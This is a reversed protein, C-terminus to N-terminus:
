TRELKANNNETTSWVQFGYLIIAYACTELVKVKLGPPLQIKFIQKMCWYKKWEM